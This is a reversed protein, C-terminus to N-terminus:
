FDTDILQILRKYYANFSRTQAAKKAAQQRPTPKSTAKKVSPRKPTPKPSPTVNKKTPTTPARGTKSQTDKPAPSKTFSKSDDKPPNISLGSQVRKIARPTLHANKLANLNDTSPDLNADHSPTQASDGLNQTTAM